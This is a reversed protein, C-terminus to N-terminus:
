NIPCIIKNIILNFKNLINHKIGEIEMKLEEVYKKPYIAVPIIQIIGNKEIVELKDGEKLGLSLILENPITLQVKKRLEMIM